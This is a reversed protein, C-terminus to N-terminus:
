SVKIGRRTLFRHTIIALLLMIIGLSCSICGLNFYYNKYIALSMIPSTINHPIAVFRAIQGSISSALSSGLLWVGMAFALKEKDCYLGIMSLGIASVLLEGLSILIYTFAIYNGNIIGEHAILSAFYMVFLASGSLLTGCAFQYPISFKPILQYLKPLFLGLIIILIPNLMQYQAPSITFWLFRLDSNKEALLILTTNMQNYIVFFVISELILIFAIFQKLRANTPLQFTTIFFYSIGTLCGITIIINAIKVHGYALLTCTYITIFYIFLKYYASRKLKQLDKGWVVNDYCKYKIAFNIAAISKGIFAVTLVSLPGYRSELLKPAIITALLAGINISLYYYTMAAKAKIADDSYINSVMSTATGMLLSGSVPILAYAAIFLLDGYRKITLGSLMILLYTTALMISGFIISRRIGLLGDALYGGFIPTLYLVASSIGMFAYAKEQSYGLGNQLMTRTLFVIFVANFSYTAFQSWFTIMISTQQNRLNSSSFFM